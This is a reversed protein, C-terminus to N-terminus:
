IGLKGDLVVVTVNYLSHLIIATFYFRKGYSLLKIEGKISALLKQNIGLGFIFSGIAHIGINVTYRWLILQPSPEAIYINLYIISEVVAFAIGGLSALFAAYM